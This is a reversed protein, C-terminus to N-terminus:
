GGSVLHEAEQEILFSEAAITLNIKAMDLYGQRMDERIQQERREEIYYETAKVIVEDFSCLEEKMVKKIKAILHNPLQITKGSIDVSM